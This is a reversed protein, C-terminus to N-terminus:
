DEWGSADQLYRTTPTSPSRTPAKVPFDALQKPCSSGIVFIRRCNRILGGLSKPYKWIRLCNALQKRPFRTSLLSNRSTPRPEQEAHALAPAKADPTLEAEKVVQVNRSRRGRYKAKVVRVYRRM